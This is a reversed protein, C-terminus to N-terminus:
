RTRWPDVLIDDLQWPSTGTNTFSVTVYQKGDPGFVNPLSIRPSPAWGAYTGGISTSTTASMYTTAVTTRVTLSGSPGPSKTFLRLSDEGIQVCFTAKLTAGPPLALSRVHSRDLVHWPENEQVVTPTGTLGFPTLDGSEFTGGGIPFYDNTDGFAAFAQTTTRTTCEDAAQAAVAPVVTVVLSGLLAATAAIARRALRTSRM